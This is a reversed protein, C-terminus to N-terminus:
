MYLRGRVIYRKSCRGLRWRGVETRYCFIACTNNVNYYLLLSLLIIIPLKDPSPYGGDPQNIFIPRVGYYYYLLLINYCIINYSFAGAYRNVCYYCAIRTCGTGDRARMRCRASGDINKIEYFQFGSVGALWFTIKWESRQRVCVIGHPLILQLVLTRDIQGYWM